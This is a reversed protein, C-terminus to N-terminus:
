RLTVTSRRRVFADPCSPFIVPFSTRGAENVSGRTPGGAFITTHRFTGEYEPSCYSCDHLPVMHFVRVDKLRDAQSVMESTLKVPVGACHGLVVQDGSKVAASVASAADTLKKKYLSELGEYHM